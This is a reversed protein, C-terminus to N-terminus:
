EGDDFGFLRQMRNVLVTDVPKGDIAPHYSDMALYLSELIDYGEQLIAMEETIKTINPFTSMIGNM